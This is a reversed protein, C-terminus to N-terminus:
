DRKVRTVQGNTADVKVELLQADPTLVDVSFSVRGWDSDLSAELVTGPARQLAAAIAQSLTIQAQHLRSVDKRDAKGNRKHVTAQGNGAHVYLEVSEGQATVVEIEYRPGAGDGDDLQAEVVRGPVTSLAKDVAQVLGLPSQKVVSQWELANRAQVPLATFACACVLAATATLRSHM